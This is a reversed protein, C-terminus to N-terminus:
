EILVTQRHHQFFYASPRGGRWRCLNMLDMGSSPWAAGGGHHHHKDHQKHKTHPRAQANVNGPQIYFIELTVCKKTLFHLTSYKALDREDSYLKQDMKVDRCYLEWMLTLNQGMPIFWEMNPCIFIDPHKQPPKKNVTSCLKSIQAKYLDIEVLQYALFYFIISYYDRLCVCCLVCFVFCVVVLM